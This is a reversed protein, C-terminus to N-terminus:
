SESTVADASSELAARRLWQRLRDLNQCGLIEQRQDESVVLGRAELVGLIAQALGRAEGRAEGRVEGRAEAAAEREQLVPNGKAALAEVVSDDATAADLLAAVRLPAVLSSDEIQADPELQRWSGSETSWECVRYSKAWVAFIRRVGRRHMRQAKERVLKENQESIVEFALEELYRAGTEPDVGKRKVCTDTAFDSEQDVRTLLDVSATYGPRVHAQVVYELVGHQDAHPSQAPSAVVRQGGIIEDRTIEPEVLHDDVRPFPGRGPLHRPSSGSGPHGPAKLDYGRHNEDM